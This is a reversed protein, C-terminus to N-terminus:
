EAFLKHQFAQIEAIMKANEKKIKKKNLKSPARTDIKNLKIDSM